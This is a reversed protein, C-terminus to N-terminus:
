GRVEWEGDAINPFDEKRYETTIIKNGNFTKYMRVISAQDSEKFAECYAKICDDSHSTFVFQIHPFQEAFKILFKWMDTMVSYHVGAGMEDILIITPDNPKEGDIQNLIVDILYSMASIWTTAGNGLANISVELNDDLVVSLGNIFSSLRVDTVHPNIIKLAKTLIRAVSFPMRLVDARALPFDQYVCTSNFENQIPLFAPYLYLGGDPTIAQARSLKKQIVNESLRYDLSPDTSQYFSWDWRIFATSSDFLPSNIESIDALDSYNAKNYNWMWITTGSKAEVSCKESGFNPCEDWFLQYNYTQKLSLGNQDPAFSVNKKYRTLPSVDLKTQSFLCYLGELVSTKGIGNSGTLMTFQSLPVTVNDLGRFNNFLVFDLM